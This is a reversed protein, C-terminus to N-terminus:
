LISDQDNNKNEKEKNKYSYNYIQTKFRMTERISVKETNIDM